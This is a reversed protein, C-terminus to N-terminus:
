TFKHVYKDFECVMYYTLQLRIWHSLIITIGLKKEFFSMYLLRGGLGAYESRAWQYEPFSM